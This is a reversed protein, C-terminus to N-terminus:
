LNVFIFHSIRNFLHLRTLGGSIGHTKNPYFESDFKENNDIFRKILEMSNIPHVNDDYTGHVLLLHGKLQDAYKLPASEEYGEPNDQPRQMYRETYINDYFKWSTVPAVSIGTSFVDNGKLLCLLTMYGGYSWGFIGIRDDDIYKQSGLYKAAAIQDETEYKGLHLYTMKKFEQGRAGTGRNDVSVVIYGREALYQHWFYNIWGWDDTVTQIGPGGYVTMLVPYKKDPDFDPPKIMWGNLSTGDAITFTFFEKPSTSYNAIKEKFAKNDEIVRVLKGDKTHLTIDPPENASSHTLIYYSFDKSFEIKNTGKKDTLKKKDSGNLNISYVHRELPSVEASIYYIKKDAEDYGVFNTVDWDGKTIQKKLKGKKNFLYIHNYGDKESTWLFDNNQLFTLNDTIDIYYPNTETYVVESKGTSADAFNLELKNQLRNMKQFSLINPDSTWKIRPIYIDTDNGTEVEIKGKDETNYIFLKIKSNAEGATPYKYTYLDPYVGKYDPITYKKVKSEDFRYFAIKKGDPSWQFARVLTFEEEYVWDSFGNLIHNVKGDDTISTTNSTKVDQIYLNNDFVFAVYKEDPSMTAYMISEGSMIPSLKKTTRDYLYFVAKTSHRYIHIVSTKLLIYNGNPSIQYDEIKLGSKDSNLWSSSFLTDVANEKEYAYKLILFKQHDRDYELKSYHKGDKLHNVGYFGAPYFTGSAWVEDLEINKNQSFANVALFFSIATFGFLFRNM